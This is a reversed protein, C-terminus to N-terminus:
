CTLVGGVDALRLERIRGLRTLAGFRNAGRLVVIRDKAPVCADSQESTARMHLRGGDFRILRAQLLDAPQRGTM